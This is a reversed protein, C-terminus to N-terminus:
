SFIRDKKFILQIVSCKLEFGALSLVSESALKAGFKQIWNIVQFSVTM